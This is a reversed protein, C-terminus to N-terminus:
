DVGGRPLHSLIVQSSAARSSTEIWVEVHSTVINTKGIDEPLVTEIWVEVHSTVNDEDPYM